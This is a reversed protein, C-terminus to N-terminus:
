PEAFSYPPWPGTCALRLEPNAEQLEALLATFRQVRERDVLYAACLVEGASRTRRQTAARAVAALPEHITALAEREAALSGARARLYETGAKPGENDVVAVQPGSRCEALTRYARVSVETAGRVRELSEALREYNDALIRKVSVEDSVRTGYRVPLVDRDDMLKEVVREHHWLVEPTVEAEGAPACVAALERTTVAHLSPIEPLPPGTADMIAYLQIM